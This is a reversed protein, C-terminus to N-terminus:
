QLARWRHWLRRAAKCNRAQADIWARPYECHIGHCEAGCQCDDACIEAHLAYASADNAAVSHGDAQPAWGTYMHAHSFMLERVSSPDANPRCFLRDALQFGTQFWMVASADGRYTIRSSDPLCNKITGHWTIFDTWPEPPSEFIIMLDKILRTRHLGLKEMTSCLLSADCACRIAFDNQSYYLQLAEVRTGLSARAIPPEVRRRLPKSMTPWRTSDTLLLRHKHICSYRYVMDRIERPLDLFRFPKLRLFSAYLSRQPMVAHSVSAPTHYHKNPGRRVRQERPSLSRPPTSPERSDMNRFHYPLDIAGRNVSRASVPPSSQSSDMM